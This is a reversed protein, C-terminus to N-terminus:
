GSSACHVFAYLLGCIKKWFYKHIKPPMWGLHAKCFAALCALDPQTPNFQPLVSLSTGNSWTTVPNLYLHMIEVSPFDAPISVALKPYKRGLTGDILVTCLHYHWTDLMGLLQTYAASTMVQMLSNSLDGALLAHSVQSGCGVLGGPDYDGGCLMAWLLLCATTLPMEPDNSLAQTCYADVVFTGDENDTLHLVKEAGFLLADSDETLVASIGGAKSLFALDAEAEGRATAWMFGFIHLLDQLSQTLWHPASWMHKGRKIPPRDEGDFVFHTHVPASAIAVLQSPMDSDFPRADVGVTMMSLGSEDQVHGKLGELAFAMLTQGETSPSVLKWLENIGM